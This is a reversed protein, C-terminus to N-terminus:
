QTVTPQSFELHNREFKVDSLAVGHDTAVHDGFLKGIEEIPIQKTEPIYLYVVILSLTSLACYILYMHWGISKFAVGAPVAFALTGAFFASVALSMGKARLITPFVEASWILSPADVCQFFAIFLFIFLVCASNRARSTTGIYKRQLLTEALGIMACAAFGVFGCFSNRLDHARCTKGYLILSMGPSMGLSAFIVPLYNTIGNVGTSQMALLLFIVLICRRRWSPRKLMEIFTANERKEDELQAVIANFESRADDENLTTPDHHLRKLIKWAEDLRDRWTLFRPSQGLKDAVGSQGVSGVCGGACFLCNLAVLVNATYTSTPDLAFFLYFGPQGISTIFSSSGFGFSFGGLAVVLAIGINYNTLKAM